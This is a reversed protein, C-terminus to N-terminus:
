PLLRAWTDADIIAVANLTGQQDTKFIYSVGEPSPWLGVAEQLNATHGVIINNKGAPPLQSLMARLQRGKDQKAERTLGMAFYLTDSTRSKGFALEATERCRCYPSNVVQALPIGHHRFAKGIRHAQQRGKASLNRQTKCDNLDVPRKDEQRHDTATHRLYIVYGGKKLKPIFNQLESLNLREPEFLPAELRAHSPLLSVLIIVWSYLTKQNRM